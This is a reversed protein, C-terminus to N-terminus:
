QDQLHQLVYVRLHSSLNGSARQADIESVLANMSMKREVAINKLADWFQQELTISTEHGEIRVSRKKVGIDIPPM